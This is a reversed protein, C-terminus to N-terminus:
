WFAFFELLTPKGSALNVRAPDSAELATKIPPPSAQEPSPYPYGVSEIGQSSFQYGPAPYNAGDGTNEAESVPAPTILVTGIEINETPSIVTSTPTSTPAHDLEVEDSKPEQTSTSVQQGSCAVFSMVGLIMLILWPNRPAMKMRCVGYLNFIAFPIV